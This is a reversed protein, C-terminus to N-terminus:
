LIEHVTYYDDILRGVQRRVVHDIAHASNETLARDAMESSEVGRGGPDQRNDEAVERPQRLEVGV